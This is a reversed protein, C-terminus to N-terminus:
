IQLPVGCAKQFIALRNDVNNLPHPLAEFVFGRLQASITAIFSRILDADRPTVDEIVNPTEM